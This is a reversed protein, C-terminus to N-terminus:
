GWAASRSPKLCHKLTAITGGPDDEFRDLLEALAALDVRYHLVPSPGWRCVGHDDRRAKKIWELVGADELRHRAEDVEYRSGLGFREM